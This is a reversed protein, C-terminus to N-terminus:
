SPYLFRCFVDVHIRRDPLHSTIHGDARLAAIIASEITIFARVLLLKMGSLQHQLRMNMPLGTVVHFKIKRVVTSTPIFKPLLIMTRSEGYKKCWLNFSLASRQVLLLPDEFGDISSVQHYSSFYYMIIIM